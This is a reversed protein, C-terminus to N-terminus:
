SIEFMRLIRDYLTEYCQYQYSYFLKSYPEGCVQLIVKKCSYNNRRYELSSDRDVVIVSTYYNRAFLYGVRLHLCTHAGSTYAGAKRM